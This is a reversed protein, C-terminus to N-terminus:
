EGPAEITATLLFSLLITQHIHLSAMSTKMGARQGTPGKKKEFVGCVCMCVDRTYGRRVCVYVSEVM